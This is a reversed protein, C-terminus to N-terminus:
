SDPVLPIPKLPHRAQAIALTVTGPESDLRLITKPVRLRQCGGGWTTCGLIACAEAVSPTGVTTVLWHSPHPVPVASLAEAAFTYLPLHHHRCFAILGVENAKRDLTALAAIASAEVGHQQLITQVAHAILGSSVGRNCGIGIWLIRDMLRNRNIIYQGSDDLVM